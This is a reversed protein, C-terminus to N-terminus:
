PCRKQRPEVSSLRAVNTQCSMSKGHKLVEFSNGRIKLLSPVVRTKKTLGVNIRLSQHLVVNIMAGNRLGIEVLGDTNLLVRLFRRQHHLSCLLTILGEQQYHIIGVRVSAIDAFRDFYDTAELDAPPWSERGVSIHAKRDAPRDPHIACSLQFDHTNEPEHDVASLSALNGPECRLDTEVVM